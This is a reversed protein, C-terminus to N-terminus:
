RHILAFNSINLTIVRANATEDAEHEVEGPTIAYIKAKTATKPKANPMSMGGPTILPCDWIMHGTQGCRFCEGSARRCEGSHRKGCQRCPPPTIPTSKRVVMGKGKGRTVPAKRKWTSSGSSYPFGRKRDVQAQVILRRQEAEAISADQFKRAQMKEISILHPAFRGMEMFRATYQDVIMNGQSLSAFELAKQQIATELFFRNDFETKFRDWNLTTLNGFEQALLQRKTHRWIEAKGQLMHGAYQVKQKESCRSVKFTRELDM